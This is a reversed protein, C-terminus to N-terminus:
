ILALPPHRMSMWGVPATKEAFLVNMWEDEKIYYCEHICPFPASNDYYGLVSIFSEPKEDKTLHWKNDFHKLEHGDVPCFKQWEYPIFKNGNECVDCYNTYDYGEAECCECCHPCMFCDKM